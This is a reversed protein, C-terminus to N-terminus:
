NDTIILKDTTFIKNDQTVRLFYLGSPLNNRNFIITQGSLNDIEKVTQGCSNYIILTADKFFMNTQLTTSSSFPNPYIRLDAPNKFQSISTSVSKTIKRMVLNSSKNKLQVFYTGDPYSSAYWERSYNGVNIITDAFPQYIITGFSNYISITLTDKTAVYYNITTNAAFVSPTCYLSDTQGFSSITWTIFAIIPLIKKM